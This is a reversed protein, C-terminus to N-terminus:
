LDYITQFTITAKALNLGSLSEWCGSRQWNMIYLSLYAVPLNYLYKVFYSPM